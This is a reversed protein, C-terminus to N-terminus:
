ALCSGGGGGQAYFLLHSGPVPPLWSSATQLDMLNMVRLGTERYHVCQFGEPVDM